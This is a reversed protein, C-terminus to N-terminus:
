CYCTYVKLVSLYCTYSLHAKESFIELDWAHASSLAAMLGRESVENTAKFLQEEGYLVLV